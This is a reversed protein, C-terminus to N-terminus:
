LAQASCSSVLDRRPARIQVQTGTGPARCAQRQVAARRVSQVIGLLSLLGQEPSAGSRPLIWSGAGGQQRPAGACGGAGLCWTRGPAWWRRAKCWRARSSGRGLVSTLLRRRYCCFPIWGAGLPAVLSPGASGASAKALARQGTVRACGWCM